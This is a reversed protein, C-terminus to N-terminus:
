TAGSQWSFSSLASADIERLETRGVVADPDLVVCRDLDLRRAASGNV